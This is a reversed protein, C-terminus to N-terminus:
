GIAFDSSNPLPPRIWHYRAARTFERRLLDNRKEIVRLDGVGAYILHAIEPMVRLKLGPLAPPLYAARDTLDGGQQRRSQRFGAHVSTGASPSYVRAIRVSNPYSESVM